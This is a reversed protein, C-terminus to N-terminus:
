GLVAVDTSQKTIRRRVSFARGSPGHHFTVVAHVVFGFAAASALQRAFEYRVSELPKEKARTRGGDKSM